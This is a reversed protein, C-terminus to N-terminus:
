HLIDLSRVERCASCNIAVCAHFVSELRTPSTDDKATFGLNLHLIIMLLNNNGLNRIQYILSLQDLIDSVQYVLLTDIANGIDIVLGVTATHTDYNVHFTVCVRTDHQIFQILKRSQM